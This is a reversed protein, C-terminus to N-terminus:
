TQRGTGERGVGHETQTRTHRHHQFFRHEPQGFLPLSRRRYLHSLACGLATNTLARGERRCLVLLIELGGRGVVKLCTQQCSTISHSHAHKQNKEENSTYIQLTAQDTLSCRVGVGGGGEGDAQNLTFTGSPRGGGRQTIVNRVATLSRTKWIALFGVAGDSM